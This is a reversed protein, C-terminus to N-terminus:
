LIERVKDIGMSGIGAVNLVTKTGDRGLTVSDVPAVMFTKLAQEEGDVQARAKVVYEGPPMNNGQFDTGDWSFRAAGENQSGLSITKVLQGAKTMIDVSVNPTSSEVEVSGFFRDGEGQPLYGQGGPVMVLRGVLSSAQLAQGSILSSTLKDISQQMEQQGAVTSFQAMQGLFEGNEMPKMPDQNQLQTTMLKLFDEQGLTTRKENELRTRDQISYKDILPNDNIEAM